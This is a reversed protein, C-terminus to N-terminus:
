PAPTYTITTSLSFAPDIAMYGSNSEYYSTIASYPQGGSKGSASEFIPSVVGDALQIRDTLQTINFMADFDLNKAYLVIADEVPFISPDSLLSGDANMVLPNYFVNYYVKLDDADRSVIVLEVGAFKVENMYAKFADLEPVSLKEPGNVGEKAVKMLVYAGLDVAKAYRVIQLTTNEVAYEYVETTTNWVLTDGHQYKLAQSAYWATNGTRIEKARNNIWTVHKGFLGELIWISYSIVTFLATELSLKSFQDDYTQGAALGYRQVITANNIFSTTIEEFIEQQTRM